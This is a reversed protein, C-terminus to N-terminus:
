VDILALYPEGVSTLDNPSSPMKWLAHLQETPSSVGCESASHSSMSGNQTKTTTTKRRM